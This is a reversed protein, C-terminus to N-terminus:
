VENENRKRSKEFEKERKEGTKKQQRKKNQKKLEITETKHNKLDEGAM